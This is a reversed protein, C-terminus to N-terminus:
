QLFRTFPRLLAKSARPMTDPRDQRNEYMDGVMMLMAQRIPMPVNDAAAGFGSKYTITVANPQSTACTPWSYGVKPTIFPNGNYGGFSYEAADWTQTNGDTDLYEISIIEIVPAVALFMPKDDTPFQANFQVITQELLALGYQSEVAGTAALILAEIYDDDFTMGEARLQRM